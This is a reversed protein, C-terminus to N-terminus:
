AHGKEALLQPLKPKCPESELLPWDIFLNHVSTNVVLKKKTPRGNGWKMPEELFVVVEVHALAIFTIVSPALHDPRRRATWQLAIARTMPMRPM